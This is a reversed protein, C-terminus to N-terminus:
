PRIVKSAKMMKETIEYMNTVGGVLLKDKLGYYDLCTGCTLIEVGMDSLTKLDEVSKSGETTLKAGGNYFLITKPLVDQKTLAFIFGKILVGGLENNGEGMHDASIVVVISEDNILECECKEDDDPQAEGSTIKVHYEGDNIKSYKFGYKKQVALKKLNQVAIDNDVEIWVEADKSDKMEEMADKAKIVPLPCTLGRADIKKIM